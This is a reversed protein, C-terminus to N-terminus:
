SRQPTRQIFLAPVFFSEYVEPAVGGPRPLDLRM